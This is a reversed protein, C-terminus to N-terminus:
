VKMFFNEILECIKDCDNMALDPYIPLRVLRESERTTAIDDGIFTGCQLGALSSHLPVYHFTTQVDNQRMYSIFRSRMELDILKIFFIHGNHEEAYPPIEPLRISYKKALPALNKAYRNWIRLRMAQLEELEELQSLLVAANIDSPLYSSGIDKWSYKDTEGRFFQARNTGKERIVEARTACDVDNVIIAGGEGCTINKTEHFSLCGFKGLTGLPVGKYKSGIAQAADEVVDANAEAALKLIPDMDCSVGAYHVVCIGKTKKTMARAIHDATVNMTVPDVDVFRLTAGRLAFANATSSFTFSPCIVEDGPNLKMLLASMELAHTGSTTLLVKKANLSKELFAHCRRTFSHDGSLRGSAFADSVYELTKPSLHPKSFPIM